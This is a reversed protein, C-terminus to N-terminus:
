KIKINYLTNYISNLFFIEISIQNYILILFTYLITNGIICESQINWKIMNLIVFQETPIKKQLCFYKGLFNYVKKGTM